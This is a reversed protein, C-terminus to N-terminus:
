AHQGQSQRAQAKVKAEYVHAMGLMMLAFASMDPDSYIPSTLSVMLPLFQGCFAYGWFVKVQTTPANIMRYLSTIMALVPIAALLLFGIWGFEAIFNPWYTDLLFIDMRYWWFTGYGLASFLERNFMQAGVGGFTGLGSGLPWFDNAVKFSDAYLVPRASVISKVGTVLGWESAVDYLRDPGVFTLIVIAALLTAVTLWGAIGWLSRARFSLVVLGIGLVTALAEQMQGSAMVLLWLPMGFVVMRWLSIVGGRWQVALLLLFFGSFYALVSSHVFPGTMRWGLGGLLPNSTHQFETVNRALSRFLGPAGLELLLFSAALLAYVLSLWRLRAHDSQQWCVRFGLALMLPWKLNYAFQYAAAKSHRYPSLVTGLVAVVAALVFLLAMWRLAPSSRLAQPLAMLILPVMCLLWLEMLGNMRVPAFTTMFNVAGALMIATWFAGNAGHSFSALGSNALFVIIGAVLAVLIVLYIGLGIATGLGLVLGLLVVVVAIAAVGLVHAIGGGPLRLIAANM